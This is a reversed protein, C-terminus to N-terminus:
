VVRVVEIAEGRDVEVLEDVRALDDGADDVAAAELSNLDRYAVVM